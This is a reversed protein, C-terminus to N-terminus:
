HQSSAVQLGVDHTPMIRASNTTLFKQEHASGQLKEQKIVCSQYKSEYKMFM